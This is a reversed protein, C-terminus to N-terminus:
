AAPQQPGRPDLPLAAPSSQPVPTFVERTAAPAPERVRIRTFAYFAMAAHALATFLFLSNPGAAAMVIAALLPGPISTSANIMLLGASAEVFESRPLRDNAHAVSLSYLPLAAAGFAFVVFYFLTPVDLLLQGSGGLVLGCAAAAACTAAIIWRRDMGDSLRGLPWQVIAGGAIFVSMFLALESTSFGLSQAYVPALTWFAGNALGVTLCGAAGVPSTRFIRELNLRPVPPAQPAPLRTLGIPVLCLCYLVAGTSFLEFSAPMGFLLMWQGVLLATLNVGIYIALIRGRTDNTARDNLWSEIGMFLIATCFGQLGRFLFWAAQSTWLPMMIIAAAIVASAVAFSRIHGVRSLLRPGGYCGAVFGAFYWAGLVGISVNSFGEITARLPILTGILGNGMLFILTSLLLATIGRIQSQM